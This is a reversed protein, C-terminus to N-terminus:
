KCLPCSCKRECIDCCSCNVGLNVCGDFDQLLIERRCKDKNKCYEKMAEDQFRHSAHSPIYLIASATLGDRGARGIEQMYSEIDSSAGWHIVRRVNPGMGFAVTAVVM